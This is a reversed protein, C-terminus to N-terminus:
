LASKPQGLFNENSLLAESISSVPQDAGGNWLPSRRAHNVAM